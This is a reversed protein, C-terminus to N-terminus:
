VYTSGYWVMVIWHKQKQVPDETTGRNIEWMQPLQVSDLDIKQPLVALAGFIVARPAQNISSNYKLIWLGKQPQEFAVCPYFALALGLFLCLVIAVFQKTKGQEIRALVDHYPVARAPLPDDDM